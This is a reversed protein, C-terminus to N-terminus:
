SKQLLLHIRNVVTTAPHTSLVGSSILQIASQFDIDVHVMRIRLDWGLELGHLIGMLKAITISTIGIKAVFGGM